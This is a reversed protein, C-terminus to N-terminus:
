GQADVFACFGCDSGNPAVRHTELPDSWHLPRITDVETRIETEPPLGRESIAPTYPSDRHTDVPAVAGQAMHGM